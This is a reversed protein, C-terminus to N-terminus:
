KGSIVTAHADKTTRAGRFEAGCAGRLGGRSLGGAAALADIAGALWTPIASRPSM